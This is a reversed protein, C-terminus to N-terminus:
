SSTPLRSLLSRPTAMPPESSSCSLTKLTVKLSASSLRAPPWLPAVPGESSCLFLIVDGRLDSGPQVATSSSMVRV